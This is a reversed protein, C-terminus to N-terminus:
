AGVEASASRLEALWTEALARNPVHEPLRALNRVAGLREDLFALEHLYGRAVPVDRQTGLDNLLQLM